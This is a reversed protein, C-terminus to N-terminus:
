PPHANQRPACGGLIPRHSVHLATSAHTPPRAGPPVLQRLASVQLRFTNAAALSVDDSCAPPLAPPVAISATCSSSHHQSTHAGLATADRRTPLACLPVTHSSRAATAACAPPWLQVCTFHLAAVVHKGGREVCSLEMELMTGGDSHWLRRRPSHRRVNDEAARPTRPGVLRQAAAPSVRRAPGAHV